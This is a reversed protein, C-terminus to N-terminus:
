ELAPKGGLSPDAKRKSQPFHKTCATRANSHLCLHEQTGQAAALGGCHGQSGLATERLTLYSTPLLLDFSLRSAGEARRDGGNRQELVEQVIEWTSKM